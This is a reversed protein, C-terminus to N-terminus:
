VSGTLLPYKKELNGLITVIDKGLAVCPGALSLGACRAVLHYFDAAPIADTTLGVTVLGLLATVYSNAFRILIAALPSVVMILLNPKHEGPTEIVGYPTRGDGTGIMAVTIPALPETTIKSAPPDNVPVDSQPDKAPLQEPAPKPVLEPV